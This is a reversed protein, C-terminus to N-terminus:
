THAQRGAQRGARTGMWENMLISAERGSRLGPLFIIVGRGRLHYDNFDMRVHRQGLSMLALGEGRLCGRSMVGSVGGRLM